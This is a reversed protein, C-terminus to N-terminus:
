SHTLAPVVWTFGPEKIVECFQEFDLGDQEALGLQAFLTDVRVQIVERSLNHDELRVAGDTSGGNDGGGGGLPPPIAESLQMSKHGFSKRPPPLLKNCMDLM